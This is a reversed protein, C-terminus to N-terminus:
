YACAWYMGTQRYLIMIQTMAALPGGGAKLWVQAITFTRQTGAVKMDEM